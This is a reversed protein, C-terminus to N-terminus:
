TEEDVAPSDLSSWWAPREYGDPLMTTADGIASELQQPTLGRAKGLDAGRLDARELHTGTLIAGNLRAGRLDAGSMVADTLNALLLWAGGLRAGVLGAKTLNVDILVAETLDAHELRVFNLDSRPRFVLEALSAAGTLGAGELDARRVNPLVSLRALVQVITRVDTASKPRALKLDKGEQIDSWHVKPDRSRVRVFASLVDVITEQDASSDFALRELAYIGGLRSALNEDNLLKVSEVCTALWGHVVGPGRCPRRFNEIAVSPLQDEPRRPAARM